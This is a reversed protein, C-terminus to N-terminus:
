CHLLCHLSRLLTAARRTLCPGSIASGGVAAEATSAATGGAAARHTSHSHSDNQGPRAGTGKDYVLSWREILCEVGDGGAIIDIHITITQPPHASNMTRSFVHQVSETEIETELADATFSACGSRISRGAREFLNGVVEDM